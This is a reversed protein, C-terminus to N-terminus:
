PRGTSAAPRRRDDIWRAAGDIDGRSVAEAPRRLGQGIGDDGEIQVRAFNAPATLDAVVDENRATVPRPIRIKGAGLFISRVRIESARGNKTMQCLTLVQDHGPLLRSRDPRDIGVCAALDDPM